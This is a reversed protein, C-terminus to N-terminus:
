GALAVVDRDHVVHQPSHATTDSFNTYLGKRLSGLGDGPIM